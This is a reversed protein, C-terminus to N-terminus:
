AVQSHVGEIEPIDKVVMQVIQQGDLEIVSIHVESHFNEGNMRCLTAELRVYDRTRIAKNVADFVLAATSSGDDQREPLFRDLNLQDQMAIDIHFLQEAAENYESIQRGNILVVADHSAEFLAKFKRQQYEIEGSKRAISGSVGYALLIGVFVVILGIPIIEWFAILYIEDSALKAERNSRKQLEVITRTQNIVKEQALRADEMLFKRAAESDGREIMRLVALQRPQGIAALEDLLALEQKEEDSMPLRMMQERALLYDSAAQNFDEWLDLRAFEDELHTYIFLSYRRTQLAELMTGAYRLKSNNVDIIQQTQANIEKLANISLSFGAVVLLIVFLFIMALQRYILETVPGRKFNVQFQM